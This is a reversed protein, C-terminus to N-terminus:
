RSDSPLVVIAITNSKVAESNPDNSVHESAQVIYKGPQSLDLVDTLLNRGQTSEGPQLVTDKSGPISIPGSSQIPENPDRPKPKLLNGNSDRVEIQYGVRDGVQNKKAIEHDARNTKRVVIEVPSGARVVKDTTNAFDWDYPGGNATIELTFPPEVVSQQSVGTGSVVAYCIAALLSINRVAKM